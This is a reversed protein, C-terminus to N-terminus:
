AALSDTDSLDDLDRKRTRDWDLNRNGLALSPIRPNTSRSLNPTEQVVRSLRAHLDVRLLLLLTTLKLEFEAVLSPCFPCSSEPNLSVLM